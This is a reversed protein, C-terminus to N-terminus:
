SAPTHDQEDTARRKLIKNMAKEMAKDVMAYDVLEHSVCMIALHLGKGEPLSLRELFDQRRLRYSERLLRKLRNRKNARKHYKKAVNVLVKLPEGEGSETELYVLRLPFSIFSSGRRFLEEVEKKLYLRREKPLSYDRTEM